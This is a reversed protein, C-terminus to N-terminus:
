RCTQWRVWEDDYGLRKLTSECRNIALAQDFRSIDEDDLSCVTKLFARYNGSMYYMALAPHMHFWEGELADDSHMQHFANELAFATRRDMATFVWSLVLKMPSGTQLSALRSRPNTSVGVKSPGTWEGEPTEMGIVYVYHLKEEMM